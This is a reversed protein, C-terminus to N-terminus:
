TEVKGAKKLELRGVKTTSWRAPRAPRAWPRFAAAKASPSACTM